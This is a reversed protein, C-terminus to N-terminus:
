KKYKDDLLAFAAAFDAEHNHRAKKLTVGNKRLKAIVYNIQGEGLSTKMCIELVLHEPYMEIVTVLLEPTIFPPHTKNKRNGYEPNEKLFTERLEEKTKNM